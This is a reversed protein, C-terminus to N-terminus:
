FDSHMSLHSFFQISLNFFYYIENYFKVIFSNALAHFSQFLYKSIFYALIIPINSIFKHFCLLFTSISQKSHKNIISKTPGGRQHQIKKKYANRFLQRM